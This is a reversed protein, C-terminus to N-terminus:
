NRKFDCGLDMQFSMQEDDKMKRFRVGLALNHERRRHQLLLKWLQERVIKVNLAERDAQFREM